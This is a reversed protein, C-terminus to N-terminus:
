NGQERNEKCFEIYNSFYKSWQRYPCATIFENKLGGYNPIAILPGLISEVNVIYLYKEDVGLNFDHTFNQSIDDYSLYKEASRVVAYMSYDVMKQMAIDEQSHHEDILSPTPVGPTKYQFFGLIQAPSQGITGYNVMCFDYWEMGRFTPACRFLMAEDDHNLKACTYGRIEFKGRFGSDSMHRSIKTMMEANGHHNLKNKRADDWKLHFVRNAPLRPNQPADFVVTYRGNTEVDDNMDDQEMDFDGVEDRITSYALEIKITEYNRIAIQRTFSSAVRQTNQATKKVIKKHNTEGPGGNFNTASGFHRMYRTFKSVAHFKPLKWANGRGDGLIKRRPFNSLLMEKLGVFADDASDVESRLHNSHCWKECALLLSVTKIIKRKSLGHKKCHADFLAKGHTTKLAVIFMFLNGRRESGGMKTGDMIGNRNSPRPFDRESQRRSKLVVNQHLTDIEDKVTANSDDLGIIDHITEFVRTYIGSGFTHLGEPPTCGNIGHKVDSLPVFNTDFANDVHHRSLEKMSGTKNGIFANKIENETVYECQTSALDLNDFSCKCDRYPRSCNGHVNYHGCLENNGSADGIVFHIWPKVTVERGLITTRFGGNKSISSINQLIAKLCNHQDQLKERSPAKSHKGKGYSLNPVFGLVRWFDVVNRAKQNFIGLTFMLPSTALSGHLDTHTKDYFIIIPLPFDGEEKCYQELALKYMDGTHIDGCMKPGIMTEKGTFIDFNPILNDNNMLEKDHLLSLVMSKFDFTPVTVYTPSSILRVEKDVPEMGYVSLLTDLKSLIQKRSLWKAEKFNIESTTGHFNL